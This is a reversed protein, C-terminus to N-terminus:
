NLHTTLYLYETEDGILCVHLTCFELITISVYRIIRASLGM